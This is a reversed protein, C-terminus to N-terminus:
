PLVPVITIEPDPRLLSLSFLENWTFVVETSGYAPLSRVVTQSAAAVDGNLMYLVAVLQINGKTEPSRNEVVARVRTTDQSLIQKQSIVFPSEIADATQWKLGDAFTIFAQGVNTGTAINPIYLPVVSKPPLDLVGEKSGLLTGTTDFVEAVYRAGRTAATQNRNEIYAVVDIRGNAHVVARELTNRPAVIQHPCLFACAGGCDVGAEDQNMIGDSCSPTRYLSVILIGSILMLGMAVFAAITYARQRDSWELAM